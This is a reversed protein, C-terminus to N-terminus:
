IQTFFSSFTIKLEENIGFCDIIEYLLEELEEFQYNKLKILALLYLYSYKKEYKLLEIIIGESDTYLKEKFYSEALKIKNEFIKEFNVRFILEKDLESLYNLINNEFNQNNINIFTNKCELLKKSYINSLNDNLIIELNKEFNQENVVVNNEIIEYELLISNERNCFDNISGLGTTIPIVGCAFGNLLNLSSFNNKSFYIQYNSDSFVALTVPKEYSIIKLNKIKSKKLKEELLLINQEKEFIIFDLEFNDYNTSLLDFTRIILDINNYSDYECIFKIIKNKSKEFFNDVFYPEIFPRLIKVKNEVVGNDSLLKKTFHSNVWIQDSLFNLNKIYKEDFILEYNKFIIILYSDKNDYEEYYKSQILLKKNEFELSNNIVKDELTNYKNFYFINSRFSPLFDLIPTFSNHYIAETLTIIYSILEYNIWKTNYFTNKNNFDFNSNSIVEYKLLENIYFDFGNNYILNLIYAKFEESIINWSNDKINLNVGNKNGYWWLIGNLTSELMSDIFNVGLFNATQIMISETNKNLEMFDILLLNNTFYKKNASVGDYISLLLHLNKIFNYFNYYKRYGRNLENFSNFSSIYSRITFIFKVNVFDETINKFLNNESYFLIKILKEIEKYPLEDYYEIKKVFHEHIFICKIQELDIKQTKAYAVHLALIINKRTIVSLNELIGVLYNKIDNKPLSFDSELNKGLNLNEGTNKSLSFNIIYDSIKNIDVTFNLIKELDQYISLVRPIMLINPHNDLLSQFLVSGSRGIPFLFSVSINKHDFNNIFAVEKEFSM